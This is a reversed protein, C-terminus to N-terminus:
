NARRKYIQVTTHQDVDLERGIPMDSNMSFYGASSPTGSVESHNFKQFHYIAKPRFDHNKDNICIALCIEERVKGTTIVEEMVHDYVRETYIRYLDNPMFEIVIRIASNETPITLINVHSIFKAMRMNFHIKLFGNNNLADLVETVPISELAEYKGSCYCDPADYARRSPIYGYVIEDETESLKIFNGMYNNHINLYQKEYDAVPKLTATILYDNGISDSQPGSITLPISSPMGRVDFTDVNIIDGTEFEPNEESLGGNKVVEDLTEFSIINNM